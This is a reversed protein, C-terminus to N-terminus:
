YSSRAKKLQKFLRGADAITKLFQAQQSRKFDPDDAKQIVLAQEYAKLIIGRIDGVISKIIKMGKSYYAAIPDFGKEALDPGVEWKKELFSYCGVSMM